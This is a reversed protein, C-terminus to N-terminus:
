TLGIERMGGTVSYAWPGTPRNHCLREIEGWRAITNVRDARVYRRPMLLGTM